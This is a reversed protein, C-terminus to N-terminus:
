PKVGAAALGSLVARQVKRPDGGPANITINITNGGSAKGQPTVTVREPRDGEGALFLTPRTVWEDGGQARGRIPSSSPPTTSPFLGTKLPNFGRLANILGQIDELYQKMGRLPVLIPAMMTVFNMVAQGIAKAAAAGGLGEAIGGIIGGVLNASITSIITQVNTLMKTLGIGLGESLEKGTADSALLDKIATGIARGINEGALRVGSQVDHSLAWKVLIETIKLGNKLAWDIATKLGESITNGIGKWDISSWASTIKEKLGVAGFDFEVGEM